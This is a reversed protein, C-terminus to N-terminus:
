AMESPLEIHPWDKFHKWSGGSILGVSNCIGILPFYLYEDWLPAVKMEGPAAGNVCVDLARAPYKNHNSAKNFGDIQTVIDGPTTRGQQYLKQQTQPTRYTCTIVLSKGTIRQYLDLVLPWKEQLYPHCDKIDRSDEMNLRSEGDSKRSVRAASVASTMGLLRTIWRYIWLSALRPTLCGKADPAHNQVSRGWLVGQM